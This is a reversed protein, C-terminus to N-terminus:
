LTPTSLDSAEQNAVKIGGYQVDKQLEINVM